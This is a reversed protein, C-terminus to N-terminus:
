GWVRVRVGLKFGVWYKVGFSLRLRLGLSLGM